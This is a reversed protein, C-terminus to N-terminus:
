QSAAQEELLQAREILDKREVPKRPQLDFTWEYRDVIRGPWFVEAFFDFPFADYWPAEIARHTALTEYGEKSIRVNYDGYWQFAVTVPSQGIQEDNLVVTADSPSTNVKITREVCGSGAAAAVVLWGLAGLRKMAKREM